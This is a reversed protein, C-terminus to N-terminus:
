REILRKPADPLDPPAGPAFDTGSVMPHAREVGAQVRRLHDSEDLIRRTGTEVAEDVTRQEALRRLKMAEEILKDAAAGPDDPINREGYHNRVWSVMESTPMERPFRSVLDFANEEPMAGSRVHQWRADGDRWREKLGFYSQGYAGPVWEIRLRPSVMALERVVDTPPIPHGVPTILAAGSNGAYIVSAPGNEAPVHTHQMISAGM